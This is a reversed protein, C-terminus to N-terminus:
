TDTEVAIKIGKVTDQFDKKLESMQNRVECDLGIVDDLSKAVAGVSFRNLARDVLEAIESYVLQDHLFAAVAVENAANLIVAHEPTSSLVTKALKFCPFRVPDIEYFDLRSLKVLDLTEVQWTMREPYDLAYSIPIRMDTSGMHAICSGDAFNVLGHVVSQPHIVAKIKEVPLSFLWKAEILELGKNMLTASDITVKPGMKWNPHKLAQQLNVSRMQERSMQRFPGGSATLVVDKIVEDSEGKLCQFIANHESDVPLISAGTMRLMPMILHGAVVLTEKNALAIDILALQKSKERIEISDEEKVQYSSINVKKGNVRVHGHNILQRSSFITNSLKSRYIVADLRRELLGILNEATDGKKMIAKKYVNRFQRENMNGYYSKLKQKAQLQIGYDSLKGAKSQGHQGPPYARSNFPSKPRGWLNVKLRRDVKHKSNLRKTM